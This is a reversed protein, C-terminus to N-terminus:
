QMLDLVMKLETIEKEVVAKEVESLYPLLRHCADLQNNIINKKDVFFIQNTDDIFSYVVRTGKQSPSGCTKATLMPVMNSEYSLINKM